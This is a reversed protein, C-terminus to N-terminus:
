YLFQLLNEDNCIVGVVENSVRIAGREKGNLQMQVVLNIIARAGSSVLIDHIIQM